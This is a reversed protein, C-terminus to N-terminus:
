TGWHSYRRGRDHPRCFLIFLLQSCDLVNIKYNNRGFNHAVMFAFKQEGVGRLFGSELHMPNRNVPHSSSAVYKILPQLGSTHFEVVEDYMFSQIGPFTGTGNTSRWKGVLWSIPKVLSNLDGEWEM